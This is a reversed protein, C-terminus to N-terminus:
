LAQSALKSGTKEAKVRKQEEKAAIEKLEAERDLIKMKYFELEQLKKNTVHGAVVLLFLFVTAGAFVGVNTWMAATAHATQFSLLGWFMFILIIYLAILALLIKVIGLCGNTYFSKDYKIDQEFYGLKTDIKVRNIEEVTPLRSM